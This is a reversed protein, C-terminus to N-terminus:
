ATREDESFASFCFEIYRWTHIHWPANSSFLLDIGRHRFPSRGVFARFYVSCERINSLSHHERRIECCEPGGRPWGEAEAPVESGGTGRCRLFPYRVRSGFFPEMSDVGRDRLGRSCSRHKRLEAALFNSRLLSPLYRVQPRGPAYESIGPQDHEIVRYYM